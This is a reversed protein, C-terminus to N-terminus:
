MCTCMGGSSHSSAVGVLDFSQALMGYCERSPCEQLALVGPNLRVIEQVVRGRKDEAKFDRDDLQCAHSKRDGCINWTLVRLPEFCGSAVAQVTGFVGEKDGEQLRGEGDKEPICLAVLIRRCAYDGCLM